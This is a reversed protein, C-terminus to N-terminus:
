TNTNIDKQYNIFTQAYTNLSNLVATASQKVTNDSITSSHGLRSPKLKKLTAECKLLLTNISAPTEPKTQLQKTIYKTVLAIWCIFLSTESNKIEIPAKKTAKRIDKLDDLTQNIKNLWKRTSDNTTLHNIKVGANKLAECFRSLLNIPGNQSTTEPQPDTKIKKTLSNTEAELQKAYNSLGNVLNTKRLDKIQQDTKKVHFRKTNFSIEPPQQTIKEQSTVFPYDDKHNHALINESGPTRQTLASPQIHPNDSPTDFDPAERSKIKPNETPPEKTKGVRGLKYIHERLSNTRTILIKCIQEQEDPQNSNDWLLLMLAGKIDGLLSDIDASTCQNQKLKQLLSECDDILKKTEAEGKLCILNQTLPNLNLGTLGIDSTMKGLVVDDLVDFFSDIRDIVTYPKLTVRKKETKTESPQSDASATAPTKPQLDTKARTLSSSQNGKVPTGDNHPNNRYPELANQLATDRENLNEMTKIRNWDPWKLLRTAETAEDIRQDLKKKRENASAIQQIDNWAAEGILEINRKATEIEGTIYDIAASMAYNIPTNILSYQDIENAEAIIKDTEKKIDTIAHEGFIDRAQNILRNLNLQTLLQSNTRPDNTNKSIATAFSHYLKSSVYIDVPSNENTKSLENALNQLENFPLDPTQLKEAVATFQEIVTNNNLPKLSPNKKRELTVMQAFAGSEQELSTHAHTATTLSTAFCEGIIRIYTDADNKDYFPKPSTKTIGTANALISNFTNYLSSADSKELCRVNSIITSLTQLDNGPFISNTNKVFSFIANSASEIRLYLKTNWVVTKNISQLVANAFQKATEHYSKKADSAVDNIATNFQQIITRTAADFMTIM